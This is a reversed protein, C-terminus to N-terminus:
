VWFLFLAHHPLVSGPLNFLVTLVGESFCGKLIFYKLLLVRERSDLFHVLKQKLLDLPELENLLLAVFPELYARLDCLLHELFDPLTVRKDVLGEHLDELAGLLLLGLCFVM